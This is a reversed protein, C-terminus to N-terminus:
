KNKILQVTHDAALTEYTAKFVDEQTVISPRGALQELFDEMLGRSAPLPSLIDERATETSLTLFPEPHLRPEGTLYAVCRGKTGTCVIREDGFCPYAAPTWWDAMLAATVGNEMQVLLRADDYLDPYGERDGVKMMGMTKVVESGTLWRILDFDHIMLDVIPGGNQVKDFHWSERTEPTLKHPKSFILSVIDGLTGDDILQKIRRVPPSFRETLMLGIKMGSRVSVELVREYEELSTVLPKDLMIHIGRTCCAEIKKVKEHNISSCLAIEPEAQFFQEETELWTLHYKEALKRALPGEPEYIGICEHGLKLMEEVAMELHFHRCGYVGFKM